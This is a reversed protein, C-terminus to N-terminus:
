ELTFLHRGSVPRCMSLLPRRNAVGLEGSPPRSDPMRVEHDADRQIGVDRRLMIEHDLGLTGEILGNAPDHIKRSDPLLISIRKTM